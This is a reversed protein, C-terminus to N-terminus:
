QMKLDEYSPLKEVLSGKIVYMVYMVYKCWMVYMVYKCVYM